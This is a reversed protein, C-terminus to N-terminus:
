MHQFKVHTQAEELSCIDKLKTALCLIRVSLMPLFNLGLDSAANQPTQDPNVSNTVCGAITSM